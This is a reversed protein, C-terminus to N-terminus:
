RLTDLRGLRGYGLIRGASVAVTERVLSRVSAGGDSQAPSVHAVLGVEEAISRSRYAHSPASVLVVEDIGEDELFLATASLSEWTTTGNVEKRLHEDPVERDRLWNYGSTAETYRDGSQRGGTVVIVPAIGAEYLELAHELRALLAPSPRGDYQAAGLVVIAGAKQQDDDGSADWVQALTVGVYLAAVVVALLSGKVFVTIWRIPGTRGRRRTRGVPAPEDGRDVDDAGRRDLLKV